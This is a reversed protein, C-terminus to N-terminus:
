TILISIFHLPGFLIDWCSYRNILGIRGICTLLPKRFSLKSELIYVITKCIRGYKESCPLTGFIYTYIMWIICSKFEHHITFIDVINLDCYYQSKFASSFTEPSFMYLKKINLLCSITMKADFIRLLEKAIEWFMYIFFVLTKETYM